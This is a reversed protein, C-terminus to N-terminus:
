LYAETVYRRMMRHSNFYYAIMGISSNMKGIWVDRRHYFLPIIVYELKNYIDDLEWIRREEVSVQEHPEPGIAWGSVGEIWGEIWWGDLVSFNVVGNFSAKMGSTGSAEEPPLPTNLWVDVGSVMKAAMDMDYDSLYCVKVDGKLEGIYGFIDEIEKKGPADRPHAKGAMVIQIRGRRNVKRLRDLDSFILTPRKYETARRAFGLTLSDYDMGAATQSNVMDILSKKAIRHVEWIEEDPIVEVRVLKEPENAWGPIYQDYLKRFCPCTWTYPHVGNTIAHIQYGPFMAMSIESHRKAVGNIYNSVNLALRTMNLEDEGGYRRLEDMDALGSLLEKVLPYPFRDQASEVPTHTTFICLDKVLGAEGRHNSLLEVALLSSHGENMHYKRVRFGLARLMRVGGIGLVMEQKLRYRQDGGYLYYTIERDGPSNGIVDTDLFIVPVVMGSLSQVRYLWASVAVDHGGIKVAVKQDLLTMFRSPDWEQPHEIQRGRSDLEQRFYGRRSILTVAVVPINLDACSRITDGALIGLGGAYTPIENRVGIEMSFYAIKEGALVGQLDDIWGV